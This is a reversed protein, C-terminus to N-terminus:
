SATASASRRKPSSGLEHAVKQIDHIRNHVFYAQGGRNLERLIAHRILADDFRAIRTEVALRDKPATELNSISQVGLLSM